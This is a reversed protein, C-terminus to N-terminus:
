KKPAPRISEKDVQLFGNAKAKADFVIETGELDAVESDWDMGLRDYLKALASLPAGPKGTLTPSYNVNVPLAQTGDKDKFAPQIVVLVTAEKGGGFDTETEKASVIMGRHGAGQPLAVAMKRELAM